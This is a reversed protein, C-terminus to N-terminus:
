FKSKILVSYSYDGRSSTGFVYFANPNDMDPLIKTSYENDSGGFYLTDQPVGMNNVKLVFIDSHGSLTQKGALLINENSTYTVSVANDNANGGFDISWDTKQEDFNILSLYADTGGNIGITKYGCTLMSPYELVKVEAFYGDFSEFLPFGTEEKGFDYSHEYIIAKSQGAEEMNGPSFIQGNESVELSGLKDIRMEINSAVTTVNYESDLVLRYRFIENRLENKKTGLILYGGTSLETFCFGEDPLTDNYVSDFLVTGDQNKDIITLKVDTFLSDEDTEETGIIALNSNNLIVLGNAWNNKDDTEGYREEWKVNGYNDVCRLVVWKDEDDNTHNVLLYILGDVQVMDVAENFYADSYFKIFESKQYSSPSTKECSQFVLGLLSCSFVINKFAKTLM